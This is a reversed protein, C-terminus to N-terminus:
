IPSVNLVKIMDMYFGQDTTNHILFQYLFTTFADVGAGGFVGDFYISWASVGDYVVEIYHPEADFVWPIAAIIVVPAGAQMSFLSYSGGAADLNIGIFNNPNWAWFRIHVDGVLPITDFQWDFRWYRGADHEPTYMSQTVVNGAPFFCRQDISYPAGSIMIWLPRFVRAIIVSVNDEDLAINGSARYALCNGQFDDYMMVEDPTHFFDVLPNYGIKM